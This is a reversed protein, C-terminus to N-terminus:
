RSRKIFGGTLIRKLIAAEQETVTRTSRNPEVGFIQDRGWRTGFIWRMTLYDYELYFRGQMRERDM